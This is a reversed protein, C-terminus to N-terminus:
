IDIVEETVISCHLLFFNSKGNLLVELDKFEYYMYL